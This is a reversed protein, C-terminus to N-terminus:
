GALAEGYYRTPGGAVKETRLKLGSAKAQAPVSVSPWGTADLIERGTCGEPRALLGAVLDRKNPGRPPRAAKAPRARKALAAASYGAEYAGDLTRRFIDLYAQCIREGGEGDPVLVPGAVSLMTEALRDLAGAKVPCDLTGTSQEPHVAEIAPARVPLVITPDAVTVEDANSAFLKLIRGGVAVYQHLQRAESVRHAGYRDAPVYRITFHELERQDIARYVAREVAVVRGGTGYNTAILCGVPLLDPVRAEGAPTVRFEDAPPPAIKGEAPEIPAWTFAGADGGITFHEGAQAAAGLVKRAARTANSRNTYTTTV